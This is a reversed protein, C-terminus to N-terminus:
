SDLFCLKAEAPSVLSIVRKSECLLLHDLLERVSEPVRGPVAVLNLGPTVLAAM